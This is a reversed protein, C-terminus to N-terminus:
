SSTYPLLAMYRARKIERVLVRQHKACAATQRRPRIRGRETVYRQMLDVNKYSIVPVQRGVCQITCGSVM